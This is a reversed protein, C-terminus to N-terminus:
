KNEGGNLSTFQEQKKNYEDSIIKVIVGLFTGIATITVGVAKSYPINWVESITLWCTALAPIGYLCFNKLRDYVKNSM